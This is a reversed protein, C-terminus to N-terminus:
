PHQAPATLRSADVGERVLRLDRYAVAGFVIPLPGMAVQVAAALLFTVVGLPPLIAAMTATALNGLFGAGQTLLLIVVIAGFLAGRSGRTLAFSRKLTPGVGTTGEAVVIPIAATLAVAVIIGPVILAFLGLTVLLTTALGVLLLPWACRRGAALMAGVTVPRGALHSLTGHTLGGFLVLALSFTGLMVGAFAPLFGPPFSPVGGARLTAVFDPGLLVAAVTVALVFPVYGLLMVLAFPVVNAWWTSFTRAVLSGVTVPPLAAGPEVATTPLPQPPEATRGGLPEGLASFSAPADPFPQAGPFAPPAGGPPQAGAPAVRTRCRPCLGDPRQTHKLGCGPCTIWTM